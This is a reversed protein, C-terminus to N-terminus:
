TRSDWTERFMAFQLADVFDGDILRHRKLVGELTWGQKKFNYVAPYNSSFCGAEVKQCGLSGFAYDLVAARTELPVQQGWYDRDGIMVGVTARKDRPHHRFSHTGIHLEGDEKAFIGFLISTEGDHARIYARIDDITQKEGEVMLNRNVDPDRLWALYRDSADDESLPRLIFRETTLRM